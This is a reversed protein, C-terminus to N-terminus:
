HFVASACSTFKPYFYECWCLIRLIYLKCQVCVFLWVRVSVCCGGVCFLCREILGWKSATKSSVWGSVFFFVSVDMHLPHRLFFILFKLSRVTQVAESWQPWKPCKQVPNIILVTWWRGFGTIESFIGKKLCGASYLILMTSKYM